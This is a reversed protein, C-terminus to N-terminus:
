VFTRPGGTPSSPLRLMFSTAATARRPDTARSPSEAGAPPLAAPPLGHRENGVYFTQGNRPDILRYVYYGLADAVEKTFM